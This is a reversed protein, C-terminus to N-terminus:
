KRRHGGPKAILARPPLQRHSHPHSTQAAHGTQHRGSRQGSLSARLPQLLRDMTAPSLALLQAQSEPDCGGLHPLWQPLAARLRKSCMQDSALWVRKLLPLLRERDYLAKRGPQRRLRQPDAALRKIAYKRDYGCVACYEDLIKSKYARGVRHYRSRIQSLYERKSRLSM